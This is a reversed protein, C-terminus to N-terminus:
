VGSAAFRNIVLGRVVSGNGRLVLGNAGSGATAGSLQILPTGAFGPQTNGLISVPGTCAPLATAPSITQAGTGVHFAIVDAGPSANAALIAARLSGAGADNTNTVTFTAPALRGELAELTPRRRPLAVFM